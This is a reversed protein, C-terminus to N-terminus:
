DLQNFHVSIFERIEDTTLVKMNTILFNRFLFNGFQNCEKVLEDFMQRVSVYIPILSTIKCIEGEVIIKELIGSNRKLVFGAEKRILDEQFQNFIKGGRRIFVVFYRIRLGKGGLGTTILVQNEDLFKSELLLRSEQLALKAWDHLNQSPDNIYKEITRFAEVSGTSALQIFMNKKDEESIHKHFINERKRIVDDVDFDDDFNRSYEFYESQIDVDIQDELISLNDGFLQKLTDLINNETNLPQISKLGIIHFDTINRFNFIPFYFDIDL